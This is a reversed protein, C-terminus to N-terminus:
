RGIALEGLATATLGGTLAAADRLLLCETDRKAHVVGAVLLQAADALLTTAITDAWCGAAETLSLAAAAVVAECERAGWLDWTKKTAEPADAVLLALAEAALEVLLEKLLLSRMRM